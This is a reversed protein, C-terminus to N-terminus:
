LPGGGPPGGGRPDPGPPGELRFSGTGTPVGSRGTDPLLWIAGDDTSAVPAGLARTLAREPNGRRPPGEAWAARDLVVTDFGSARLSDLDVQWPAAISETERGLAWLDVLLPSESIFTRQAPPLAGAQNELMGGLLARGHLHQWACTRQSGLLPVVAIAGTEPRESVRQWIEPPRFVWQGLPLGGTSWLQALIGAPVLWPAWGPLGAVRPLRAIGEGALVVFFLSGVELWRDPHLMRDFGPLWRWVPYSPLLWRTGGLDQAPGLAFFTCTLAATLWLGRRRGRLLGAVAGAGVVVPLWGRLGPPQPGSLQLADAFVPSMFDSSVPPRPTWAGTLRPWALALLWPSVIVLTLAAARVLDMSVARVGRQRAGHVAFAPTVFLLFLAHFWYGLGTLAMGVGALLWSRRGGREAVDLLGLVALPLGVLAVQTLRGAALQALLVPSIAWAAGAALAPGPRSWLRLGLPLFAVLNLPIWALAAVSLWAPWPLLLRTAGSVLFELINGGHLQLLPTGAPFLQDPDSLDLRGALLADHVQHHLYVANRSDDNEFGPLSSALGAAEPGAAVVALALGLLLGLLAVVGNRATM